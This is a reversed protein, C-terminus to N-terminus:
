VICATDVCTGRLRAPGVLADGTDKTSVDVHDSQLNRLQGYAADLLYHDMCQPVHRIPSAVQCVLGGDLGRFVGCVDALCRRVVSRAAM